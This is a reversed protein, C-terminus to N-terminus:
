HARYFYPLYARSIDYYSYVSFYVLAVYNVLLIMHQFTIIAQEIVIVVSSAAVEDKGATRKHLSLLM